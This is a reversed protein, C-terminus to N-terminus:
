KTYLEWEKMVEMPTMKNSALIDAFHNGKNSSIHGKVKKIEIPYKNYWEHLIKIIDLNEPPNRDGKIWGNQKWSYAWKTICQLAYASDTYITAPEGAGVARAAAYLIACLEMKNNTVKEDSFQKTYAEILNENDDLIVVGFGGPGPNTRCSGDTYCIM